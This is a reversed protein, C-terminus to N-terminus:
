HDQPKKRQYWAVLNLVFIFLGHFILPTGSVLLENESISKFRNSFGDWLWLRSLKLMIANQGVKSSNFNTQNQVATFTAKSSNFNTQNQVATFTAMAPQGSLDNGIPRITIKNPALVPRRAEQQELALELQQVVQSMTPRNKPEDRLCREAVEVFTKLSAPSIEERLSSAVIRDVEGKNIMHRAWITLIHEDEAVSLDVAPRGCLVELLVVGFAYTDTKRTLKRTYLYHPDLYGKTGKVRTSVHSQQLKSRDEHKALGFDSVKAVFNEDLLINSTKVDRHIVRHGTHLYDLGRGAGICINLRQKWTLLSCNDISLKYLHDSLTGNAMYDYVLIMERHENCYGILSVLNVHRLESLTEIEMLFEHAGQMSNSKLRKVAVTKTQVRDIHGKYVKGFGGRGILFADSFNRTALEIESLSFRRCLREALSIITVAVFAFVNRHGLVSILVQFTHSPSDRAPPVPNPGALSNDPNSLKFIEFGAIFVKGGILDDHSHLSILLDRKGEKRQGRMMVMYDKYRPRNNNEGDDMEKVIEINTHATMENILVKFMMVDGSVAAIKLGIESFHLRIMYRFGVGVAIKWTKNQKVNDAKRMAWLPLTADFDGSFQSNHKINLRHVLELAAYQDLYIPSEHGVVQVGIDGGGQFYSVSTPVSIIEIGNIFAYTDSAESSFSIVLQENDQINLCFEKSFPKMGATLSASFNGLLIFPGAEVTFLDKLGKFGKYPASNFHLRLIKPGPSVRFAYSFRSRSIRATKHPVDGIWERGNRAAFSGMSGCNISVDDATYHTPNDISSDTFAIIPCLCLFFLVSAPYLLNM